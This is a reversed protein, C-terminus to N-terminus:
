RFKEMSFNELYLSLKLLDYLYRKCRWSRRYFLEFIFTTLFTSSLSLHFSPSELTDSWNGEQHLRLYCDDLVITQATILSSFYIPLSYRFVQQYQSLDVLQWLISARILASSKTKVHNFQHKEMWFLFPKFLFVDVDYSPVVVILVLRNLCKLTVLKWSKLHKVFWAYWLSAPLYLISFYEQNAQLSLFLSSLM